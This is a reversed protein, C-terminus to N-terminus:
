VNGDSGKKRRKPLRMGIFYAIPPLLCPLISYAAEPIVSQMTGHVVESGPLFPVIFYIFGMTTPPIRFYLLTGSNYTHPNEAIFLSVLIRAAALLLFPICCSLLDSAINKTRHGFNKGCILPVIYPTISLIVAFIMGLVLGAGGSTFLPYIGCLYLTGCVAEAILWSFFAVASNKFIGRPLTESPAETRIPQFLTGGYLAAFPLLVGLAYSFIELFPPADYNLFVSTPIAASYLFFAAYFDDSVGILMATGTYLLPLAFISLLTQWVSPLERLFRRSCLFLVGLGVAAAPIGLWPPFGGESHLMLVGFALFNYPLLLLFSVVANRLGDTFTNKTM